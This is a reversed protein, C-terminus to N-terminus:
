LGWKAYEQDKTDLLVFDYKVRVWSCNNEVMKWRQDNGACKLKLYLSFYGNSKYNFDGKTYLRLFFQPGDAGVGFEPSDFYPYTTESKNLAECLEAFNEINWTTCIIKQRFKTTLSFNDTSM